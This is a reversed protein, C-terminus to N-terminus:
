ECTDNLLSCHAHSLTDAFVNDAGRIHKIQLNYPQLFLVWRMLRKVNEFAKRCGPSWVFKVSSTLPCVVSLFNPCFGWYYGAMGLFRM